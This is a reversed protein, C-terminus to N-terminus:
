RLNFNVTITTDVDTAVGNLLYPKYTWQQVAVLAALSLQNNPSSTVHISHIRGDSGIVARMVVTGEAHSAKASAPYVPPVQKLALGAIVGSGIRVKALTGILGETSLDISDPTTTELKIVKASGLKEKGASISVAVGVKHALFVGSSNLVVSIVGSQWIVRIADDSTFCYTPFLGLPLQYMTSEGRSLPMPDSLMICDTKLSGFERHELVPDVESIHAVDDVPHIIKTILDDLVGTELGVDGGTKPSNDDDVVIQKRDGQTITRRWHSRDKWWEEVTGTAAPQGDSAALDYTFVLHWPKLDPADISNLNSIELIRTRLRETAADHNAQAFCVTATSLALATLLFRRYNFQM